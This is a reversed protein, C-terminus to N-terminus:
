KGAEKLGRWWKARLDGPCSTAIWRRGPKPHPVRKHPRVKCGSKQVYYIPAALQADTTVDEGYSFDGLLCLGRSKENWEKNGCHYRVDQPDGTIWIRGEADVIDYSIGPWPERRTELGIHGIAIDRIHRRVDRRSGDGQRQPGASHHIVIHTIDSMERRPFVLEPHVPLKGILNVIPPTFTPLADPTVDQTTSSDGPPLHAVHPTFTAIHQHMLESIERNVDFDWWDPYPGSTFVFAAAIEEDQCIENDYWALQAMYDGPNSFTKWGKQSRGVTYVGGDIGCEGIIVKPIPIGADRLEKFTRRYRLTLYGNDTDWMAPASYEHLGLYHGHTYLSRISAEFEPAHKKDLWGVSWNHGVLRLSEQAMLISLRETFRSAQRRFAPDALPHEENPGEFAHGWPRAKFEPLWRQLWRIAGPGGQWVLANSEDDPMFMRVIVKRGPFPNDRPPDVIKVFESNVLDAHEIRQFHWGLRSNM